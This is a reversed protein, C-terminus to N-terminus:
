PNYVSDESNKLFLTVDACADRPNVAIAPSESSWDIKWDPM